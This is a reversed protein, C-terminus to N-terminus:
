RETGIRKEILEREHWREGGRNKVHRGWFAEDVSRQAPGSANM